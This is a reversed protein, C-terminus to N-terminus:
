RVAALPPAIPTNGVEPKIDTIYKAVVQQAPSLKPKVEALIETNPPIGREAMISTRRGGPRQCVLQDVCNRCGPEQDQGVGVVAHEGQVLDKRETAKGTLSPGRLMKMLDGGAATASRKWSIPTTTSCPLQGSWSRVRTWRSPRVEESIQEPTGIAKAKQCKVMLDYWAQADAVDFGLGDPTFLEKGHQRM